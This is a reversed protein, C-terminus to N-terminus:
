YAVIANIHTENENLKYIQSNSSYSVQKIEVYLYLIFLVSRGLFIILHM